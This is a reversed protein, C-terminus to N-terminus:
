HCCGRVIVMAISVFFGLLAFFFAADFMRYKSYAILSNMGIQQILDDEVEGWDGQGLHFRKVMEEKITDGVWITTTPVGNTKADKIQKLGANFLQALDGYYYINPHTAPRGSRNKYPRAAEVMKVIGRREKFQSIIGIVIATIFLVLAIITLVRPSAEEKVDHLAKILVGAVAANVVILGTNRAEAFKLWNCVNDFIYRLEEKSSQIEDKNLAM